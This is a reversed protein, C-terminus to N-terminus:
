STIEKIPTRNVPSMTNPDQSSYINYPDARGSIYNPENHYVEVDNVTKVHKVLVKPALININYVTAKDENKFGERSPSKRHYISM